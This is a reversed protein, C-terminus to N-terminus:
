IYTCVTAQYDYSCGDVGPTPCSYPWSDCNATVFNCGLGATFLCLCSAICMSICITFMYSRYSFKNSYCFMPYLSIQVLQFTFYQRILHMYPQFWTPDDPDRKTRALRTQGPKYIGLDSRSEAHFLTCYYHCRTRIFYHILHAQHHHHFHIEQNEDLYKSLTVTCNCYQSQEIECDRM